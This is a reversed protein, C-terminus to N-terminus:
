FGESKTETIGLAALQRAYSIRYLEVSNSSFGVRFGVTTCHHGGELYSQKSTNGMQVVEKSYCQCGSAHVAQLGLSISDVPPSQASLASGPGLVFLCPFVLDQQCM